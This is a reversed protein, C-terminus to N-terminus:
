KLQKKKILRLWEQEDNKIIPTYRRFGYKRYKKNIFDKKYSQLFYRNFDLDLIYNMMENFYDMGRYEPQVYIGEIKCHDIPRDDYQFITFSYIVNGNEIKIYNTETMNKWDKRIILM